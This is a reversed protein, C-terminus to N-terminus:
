RRAARRRWVALGAILVAGPMLVATILAILDLQQTTVYILPLATTFGQTSFGIQDSLGTLWALGDTFLIANGLSSSVYGNTIFDSDGILLIKAGTTQDWAWGAIVQPGARDSAPDPAYAGTEALTTLDTEGYSEPSSMIIFGSNVPPNESNIDLSRALRFLTPAKEPDLRAAIDVGTAVAAGIVDLPTRISSTYDVVVANEARLGYTTWLYENFLSDAGMVPNASFQIDALILLAGGQKLYADLLALEAPGPEVTPRAIIVAAADDPIPSGAAALAALDLASTTLGSEQMGLHVASLGQQSTGLPDLTGLSTEFYVKFTGANLLRAIAQTIEREQAGGTERPIRALTSFNVSGDPNLYSLYLAGSSTAGFRQALAPEEEPNIYQHTIRGDSAAEYLRIIQDDIAQMQVADSAYFGTIRIPQSVRHLVDQTQQSLTFRRGETMDLTLAARELLTYLLAVIGVLLLASFVSATAHRTQRGRILDAFERPNLAGWAALGLAGAALLAGIVPTLAGQWLWGVVGLLLGAGGLYGAWRGLQSRRIVIPDNNM